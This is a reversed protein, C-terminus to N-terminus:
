TKKRPKREHNENTSKVIGRYGLVGVNRYETKRDHDCVRLSTDCYGPTMIDTVIGLPDRSCSVKTELQYDCHILTIIHANLNLRAGSKCRTRRQQVFDSLDTLINHM